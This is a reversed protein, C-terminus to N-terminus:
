IIYYRYKSFAFNWFKIKDRYSLLFILGPRLGRLCTKEHQTNSLQLCLQLMVFGVFNCTRGDFVWILRPMQGTQDSDESDAHLFSPDKAVWQACLLSESWVPCIGLSIQTKSPRVTMKNTKDHPPESRHCPHMVHVSLKMLNIAHWQLPVNDPFVHNQM